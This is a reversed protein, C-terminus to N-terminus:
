SSQAFQRPANKNVWKQLETMFREPMLSEQSQWARTLFPNKRTGPHNASMAYRGNFKLVKRKKTKTKRKQWIGGGTGRRPIFFNGEGKPQRPLGHGKTGEEIFRLKYAQSRRKKIVKGGSLVLGELVKRTAGVAVASEGALIRNQAREKKTLQKRGLSQKLAGSETPAAEKGAKVVPAVVRGLLQHLTKQRLGSDLAKLHATLDPNPQWEFDIDNSM